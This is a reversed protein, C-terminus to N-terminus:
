DDRGLTDGLERARRAAADIAAAIGAKIGAAEMVALAAETTGGKSTVQARLVAPEHESRQALAVAGDVTAYALRRADAAPFGQALAAAELAELFYFVYAPGSGSVATVADLREEADVWVLDGAAGLVAAALARGAADVGAPAFVGSIGRGILAPTNPMARVIRPSGGLWRALDAIRIGAAITLVVPRRDGVVFPALAAAAARMQQPKVAVVVIDAGTVAAEGAADFLAIGPHAAALRARADANPEVVRISAVACEKAVLGGILASAMNGGGIYTSIM